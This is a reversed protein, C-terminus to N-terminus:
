SVDEYLNLPVALAAQLEKGRKSIVRPQGLTPDDAMEIGKTVHGVDRMILEFGLHKSNQDNDGCHFPSRHYGDIAKCLQPVTFDRLRDRALRYEKRGQKLAGPCNPHHERYKGWVTQIQLSLSGGLALEATRPTLALAQTPKTEQDQALSQDQDQDQDQALAHTYAKASGTAEAEPSAKAAGSAYAQGTKDKKARAQGGRKGKESQKELFAIRAEVGHVRMTEADTRTALGRKILAAAFGPLEAAVDAEDLRLCISRREYCAMWLLFCSGIVERWSRGMDAAVLKFRPDNIISSDMNVRM